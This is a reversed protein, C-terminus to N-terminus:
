SAKRAKYAELEAEAWHVIYPTLSPWFAQAGLHLEATTKQLIDNIREVGLERILMPVILKMDGVLPEAMSRALGQDVFHQIIADKDFIDPRKARKM